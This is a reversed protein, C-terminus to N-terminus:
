VPNREEAAEERIEKGIAIIKNYITECNKIKIAENKVIDLYTKMETIRNQFCIIAGEMLEIKKEYKKLLSEISNLRTLYSSRRQM